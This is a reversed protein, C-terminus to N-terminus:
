GWADIRKGLFFTALATVLLAAGLPLDLLWAVVREIGGTQAMPTYSHGIWLWLDLPTKPIWYGSQYWWLCQLAIVVVGALGALVGYAKLLRGFKKTLTTHGARM